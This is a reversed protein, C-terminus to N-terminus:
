AAEERALREFIGVVDAPSAQGVAGGAVEDM